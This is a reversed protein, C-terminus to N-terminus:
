NALAWLWSEWVGAAALIGLGWQVATSPRASHDRDIVVIAIAGIISGALLGFFHAWIDVRVGSTGLMALLGLGAAFPVWRPRRSAADGRRTAAFAALLGIAGFVATSAGVSQHGSAYAIANAANGLAGSALILAFGVGAGLQRCVANVLYSGIVANGLVHPLDAHLCLATICRWWQGALIRAADANGRDYLDANLERGGTAAFTALIALGFVPGAWFSLESEAPTSDEPQGTDIPEPNERAYRDIAARARELDGAGVEIVLQGDRVVTRSNMAQSALVLSWDRATQPDRDPVVIGDPPGRSVVPLRNEDEQM